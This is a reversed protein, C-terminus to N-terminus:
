FGKSPFGPMLPKGAGERDFAFLFLLFHVDKMTGQYEHSSTKCQQSPVQPDKAM